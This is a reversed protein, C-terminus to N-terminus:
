EVAPSTGVVLVNGDPDRYAFAGEDAAVHSSLRGAIAAVAAADPVRLTWSLLTAAAPTAKRGRAWTNLGVHHHYGGASLFMAGPLGDQTVDFGVLDRYFRTNEVLDGVHLHNHGNREPEGRAAREALLDDIDLMRTYMAIRGTPDRPWLVHPRDAYLEIGIGDPDQLYAAESVGHDAFGSFPWTADALSRVAGALSARDPYLIAFHYLGIVGELRPTTGDVSQLRIFPDGGAASSLTATDGERQARMGLRGAYFDLSRDLDAVRLNVEGISTGAPLREASQTM